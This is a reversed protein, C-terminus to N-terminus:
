HLAFDFQLARGNSLGTTENARATTLQRERETRYPVDTSFPLSALCLFMFFDYSENQYLKLKHVRNDKVHYHSTKKLFFSTGLYATTVMINLCVVSVTMYMKM